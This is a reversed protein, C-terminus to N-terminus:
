RAAERKANLIVHMAHVGGLREWRGVNGPRIEVQGRRVRVETQVTPFRKESLNDLLRTVADQELQYHAIPCTGFKPGLGVRTQWSWLAGLQRQTRQQVNLTLM